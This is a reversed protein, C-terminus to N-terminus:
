PTFLQMVEPGWLSVGVWLYSLGVFTYTTVSSIAQAPAKEEKFLHFKYGWWANTLATVVFGIPLAFRNAVNYLGAEHLGLKTRVAYEGFFALLMMQVRYPVFPLGYVLLQKALEKDWFYGYIKGCLILYIFTFPIHAAFIAWVIGWVGWELVVVFVVTLGMTVFTRAATLGAATKARRDAQLAMRPMECVVNLFCSILTVRVLNVDQGAELFLRTLQPAFIQLIVVTIAGSTAVVALGMTLAKGRHQKDESLGVERFVASKQGLLIFAECITQMVTLMAIVGYDAPELYRTYLPLLLFGVFKQMISSTGYALADKFLEVLRRFM